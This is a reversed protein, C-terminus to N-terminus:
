SCEGSGYTRAPQLYVQKYTQEQLRMDITKGDKGLPHIMLDIATEKSDRTAVIRFETKGESIEREFYKMLWANFDEM